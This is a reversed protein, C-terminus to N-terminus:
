IFHLRVLQKSKCASCKHRVQILTRRCHSHFLALPLDEPSAAIAVEQLPRHHHAALLQPGSRPGAHRPRDREPHRLPVRERMGCDTLFSTM